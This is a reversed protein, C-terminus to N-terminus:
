NPNNVDPPHSFASSVNKRKRLKERYAPSRLLWLWGTLFLAPFGLIMAARRLAYQRDLHVAGTYAGGLLGGIALYLAWASVGLFIYILIRRSPM